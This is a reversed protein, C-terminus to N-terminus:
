EIRGTAPNFKRIKPQGGSQPQGPQPSGPQPPPVVPQPVPRQPPPQNGNFLQWNMINPDMPWGAAARVNIQIQQAIQFAQDEQPTTPQGEMRKRLWQTIVSEVKEKAANGGYRAWAQEQAAILRGDTAYRSAEDHGTGVARATKGKEQELEMAARHQPSQTLMKSLESMKEPVDPTWAQPFANQIQQPLSSRFRRYEAEGWMPSAARQMELYRAAGEIAKVTNAMNAAGTGSAETDLAQRGQVQRVQADGRQGLAYDEAYPIQANSQAGKLRSVALEGPTQGQYRELEAQKQQNQLYLQELTYPHAERAMNAQMGQMVGAVPGTMPGVNPMQYPNM